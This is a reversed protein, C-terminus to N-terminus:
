RFGIYSLRLLLSRLSSLTKFPPEWTAKNTKRHNQRHIYRYTQPCRANKEDNPVPSLEKEAKVFKYKSSYKPWMVTNVSPCVLPKPTGKWFRSSSERTRHCYQWLALAQKAGLNQALESLTSPWRNSTYYRRPIKDNKPINADGHLGTDSHLIACIPPNFIIATHIRRYIHILTLGIYRCRGINASIPM